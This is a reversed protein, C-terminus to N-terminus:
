VYDQVNCAEKWSSLRNIIHEGCQSYCRMCLYYLISFSLSSIRVNWKWRSTRQKPSRALSLSPSPSMELTHRRAEQRASVVLAKSHKWNLFDWKNEYISHRFGEVIGSSLKEERGRERMPAKDLRVPFTYTLTRMSTYTNLNLTCIGHYMNFHHDVEKPTFDQPSSHLARDTTTANLALVTTVNLSGNRRKCKTYKHMSSFAAQQGMKIWKLMLRLLATSTQAQYKWSTLSRIQSCM